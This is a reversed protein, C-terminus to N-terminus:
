KDMCVLLHVDEFCHGSQGCNPVDQTLNNAKYIMPGKQSRSTAIPSSEAVVARPPTPESIEVGDWTKHWLLCLSFSLIQGVAINWRDTAYPKTFDKDWIHILHGFRMLLVDIPRM